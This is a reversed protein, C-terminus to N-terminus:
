KKAEAIANSLWSVLSECDEISLFIEVDGNSEQSLCIGIKQNGVSVGLYCNERSIADKLQASGIEKMTIHNGELIISNSRWGTFLWRM